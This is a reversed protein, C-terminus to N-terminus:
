IPNVNNDFCDNFSTLIDTALHSNKTLIGLGGSHKFYLKHKFKLERFLDLVDFSKNFVDHILIIGNNDVHKFWNLCDRKIDSYRHSGDIHLIDIEGTFISSYQEFDQKVIEGPMCHTEKNRIVDDFTNRFGTDIDGQFLDVGILSTSLNLNKIANAFVFYSYGYDIGLEVIVKPNASDVLWEAFKRHGHWGSPIEEIWDM